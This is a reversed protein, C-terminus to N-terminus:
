LGVTIYPMLFGHYRIRRRNGIRDLLEKSNFELNYGTKDGFESWLTISDPDVSFCTIYFSQNEIKEEFISFERKLSERWVEEPLGELVERTVQM